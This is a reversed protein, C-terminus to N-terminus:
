EDSEVHMDGWDLPEIARRRQVNLKPCRGLQAIFEPSESVVTGFVSPSVGSVGLEECRYMGGRVELSILKKSEATARKSETGKACYEKLLEATAEMWRWDLIRVVEDIDSGMERVLILDGNADVQNRVKFTVPLARRETGGTNKTITLWVASGDASADSENGGRKFQIVRAPHFGTATGGPQTLKPPGYSPIGGMNIEPKGHNTFGILIPMGRIKSTINTMWAEIQKARGMGLNNAPNISGDAEAFAARASANPAGLLSDVFIYCPVKHLKPDSRIIDVLENAKTMWALEELEEEGEASEIKSKNKSKKKKDLEEEAMLAAPYYRIRSLHSRKVPPKGSEGDTDLCQKVSEFSVKNETEIFFFFGGHDLFSTAVHFGHSSKGSGQEGVYIEIQGLEYVSSDYLWQEAYNRIPVGRVIKEAESLTLGGFGRSVGDLVSLASETVSKKKAM